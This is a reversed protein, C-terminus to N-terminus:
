TETKGRTVEVKRVPESVSFEVKIPPAELEELDPSYNERYVQPKLARLRFMLLADSKRKIPVSKPKGNIYVTKYGSTYGEVARVDAERELVEAIDDRADDFREKFEPDEEAYEYVSRRSYGAIKAAEGITCKAALAKFFKNDRTKTRNTVRAM